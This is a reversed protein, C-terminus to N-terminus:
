LNKTSTQEFKCPNGVYFSTQSEMMKCIKNFRLPKKFFAEFWKIVNKLTAFIQQCKNFSQMAKRCFIFNSSGDDQM